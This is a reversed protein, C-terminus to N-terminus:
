LAAPSPLVILYSAVLQVFPAGYRFERWAFAIVPPLSFILLLITSRFSIIRLITTSGVLYGIVHLLCAAFAVVACAILFLRLNPHTTESDAALLALLAMTPVILLAKLFFPKCYSCGAIAWPITHGSKLMMSLIEGPAPEDIGLKVLVAPWLLM